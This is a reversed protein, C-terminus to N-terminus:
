RPTNIGDYHVGFAAAVYGPVATCTACAVTLWVPADIASTTVTLVYAVVGLAMCALYVVTRTRPSFTPTFDDDGGADEHMDDMPEQMDDM